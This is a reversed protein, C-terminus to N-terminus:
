VQKWKIWNQGLDGTVRLKLPFPVTGQLLVTSLTAAIQAAARAKMSDDMPARELEQEELRARVERAPIDLGCRSVM